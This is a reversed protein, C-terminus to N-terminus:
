LTEPTVRADRIVKAWKRVEVGLFQALQAPTSGVPEAGEGSLRAHVALVRLRGAKIYPMAAMFNDFM